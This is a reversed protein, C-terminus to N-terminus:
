PIHDRINLTPYFACDQYPSSTSHLPLSQCSLALLLHYPICYWSLWNYVRSFFSALSFRSNSFWTEHFPYCTYLKFLCVSSFLLSWWENQPVKPRRQFWRIKLISFLLFLTSPVLSLFADEFLITFDFTRCGPTPRVAPGFSNDGCDATLPHM